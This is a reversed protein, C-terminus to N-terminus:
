QNKSLLSDFKQLEDTFYNELLKRSQEDMPQKKAQKLFVKNRFFRITSKPLIRGAYKTVLPNKLVAKTVANRPEQYANKEVHDESFGEVPVDLFSALQEKILDPNKKLDEFSLVLVDKKKFYKYFNKLQKSYQGQVAFNGFTNKNKDDAIQKKITEYFTMGNGGRRGLLLFASYAREVPNRIIAIIKADPSANHIRKPAEYDSLYHTTGEGIYKQNSAGDFLSLYEKKDQTAGLVQRHREPIPPTSFYNPEKVKSMFVDSHRDLMEHLTTTGSRPAGVLFLNPWKPTSKSM